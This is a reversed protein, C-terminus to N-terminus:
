LCCSECSILLITKIRNKSLLRRNLIKCDNCYFNHINFNSVNNIINCNDIVRTIIIVIIVNGKFLKFELLIVIIIYIRNSVKVLIFYTM